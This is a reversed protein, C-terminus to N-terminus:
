HIHPRNIKRMTTTGPAPLGLAIGDCCGGLVDQLVPINNTYQAFFGSYIAVVNNLILIGEQTKVDLGVGQLAAVIDAPTLATGKAEACIVPEVARLYPIANPAKEVGFFVADEVAVTVIPRVAPNTSTTTCGTLLAALLAPLLIKM